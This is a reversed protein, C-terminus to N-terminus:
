RMNPRSFECSGDACWAPPHTTNAFGGCTPFVVRGAPAVVMPTYLPVTELSDHGNELSGIGIRAGSSLEFQIAAKAVAEGEATFALATMTKLLAQHLRDAQDM